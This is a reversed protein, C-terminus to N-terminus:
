GYLIKSPRSKMEAVLFQSSCQIPVRRSPDQDLDTITPNLSMFNTLWFNHFFFPSFFHNTLGHSSVSDVDIARNIDKTASVHDDM